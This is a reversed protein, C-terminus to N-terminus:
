ESWASSSTPITIWRAPCRDWVLSRGDLDADGTVTVVSPSGLACTM